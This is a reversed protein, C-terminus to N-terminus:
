PRVERDPARGPQRLGPGARRHTGPPGPDRGRGPDRSGSRAAAQAQSLQELEGGLRAALDFLPGLPRPTFLGDCAGWAWRADPLVHELQEVLASKGAGAEGALLVLRGDGRRAQAAYDLLSALPSERELLQV